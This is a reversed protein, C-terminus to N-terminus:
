PKNPNALSYTAYFDANHRIREAELWDAYRGCPGRPTAPKLPRKQEELLDPSIAIFLWGVAGLVFALWNGLLLGTAVGAIPGTVGGILFAWGYGTGESFGAFASIAWSALWLLGGLFGSIEKAKTLLSPKL